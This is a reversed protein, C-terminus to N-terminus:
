ESREWVRAILIDDAKCLWRTVNIVIGDGGLSTAMVAQDSCIEGRDGEIEGSSEGLFDNPGTVLYMPNWFDRHRYFEPAQRISVCCGDRFAAETEPVAPLGKPLEVPGGFAARLDPDKALSMMEWWGFLQWNMTKSAWKASGSNVVLRHFLLIQYVDILCYQRSRGRGGSESCLELDTKSLYNTLTHQSIDAVAMVDSALFRRGDLAELPSQTGLWHKVDKRMTGSM